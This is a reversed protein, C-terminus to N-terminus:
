GMTRPPELPIHWYAEIAIGRQCVTMIHAPPLSRIGAFMTYPPLTYGHRLYDGIALTELERPVEPIELLSKIESAFAFINRDNYYYFPKIGLRDRAAFLVKRRDDWIAFAFMGRLHLVCKEGFEEWAHLVTETDSRTRFDHGSQILRKSLENYNYIEGNFVIWASGDNNRMPQHGGAADIISLRNFGLGVNRNVYVGHDDPGRHVAVSQMDTLLSEPVPRQRDFYFLGNISCM